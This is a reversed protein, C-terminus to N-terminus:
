GQPKDTFRAYVLGLLAFYFHTFFVTSKLINDSYMYVLFTLTLIMATSQVLFKYPAKENRFRSYVMFFTSVFGFLLFALGVFGYNYRVSLYDNHAESIGTGGWVAKLVYMDARPGNGFIPSTKLGREYYQLFNARGSTNMTSSPEYYNVSLDSLQGSGEYFTKEQFGKSNFVLLVLVLGIASFAIKSFIQRNAFHFIFILLFVLIGMRTVDIFPVLFFLFFFVIFRLKRIMYFAGISLAATVSLLMPTAAAYPTWGDRFLYGYAFLLVVFFSLMLMRKYLWHLKEKDYVFSSAIVGVLIPVLYQLTLQLGPFSFRFLLYLWLYALWLAWPWFPLTVAAYRQLYYYATVLLMILWAWGTLNFGGVFASPLSPFMYGIFPLFACFFLWNYFAYFQKDKM